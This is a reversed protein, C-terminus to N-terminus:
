VGLEIHCRLVGVGIGVDFVRGDRGDLTFFGELFVELHAGISLVELVSVNEGLGICGRLVMGERGEGHEM